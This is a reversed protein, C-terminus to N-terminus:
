SAARAGAATCKNLGLAAWGNAIAKAAGHQHHVAHAARTGQEPVLRPV